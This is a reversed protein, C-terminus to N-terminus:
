GPLACFDRHFGTAKAMALTKYGVVTLPHLCRMDTAFIATSQSVWASHKGVLYIVGIFM